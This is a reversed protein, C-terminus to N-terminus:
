VTQQNSVVAVVALQHLVQLLHIAVQHELFTQHQQQAQVALVLWSQTHALVLVWLLVLSLVAVAVLQKVLLLTVTDVLVVVVTLHVVVVVALSLWISL